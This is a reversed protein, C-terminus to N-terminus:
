DDLRQGVGLDGSNALAGPYNWGDYRRPLSCGGPVRCAGTRDSSSPSNGRGAVIVGRSQPVASHTYPVNPNVSEEGVQTLCLGVHFEFAAEGEEDRLNVTLQKGHLDIGLYSM